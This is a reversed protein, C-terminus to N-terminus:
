ATPVLIDQDARNVAAHHLRSIPEAIGEGRFAM